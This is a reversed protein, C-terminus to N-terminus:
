VDSQMLRAFFNKRELKHCYRGPKGRDVTASLLGEQTYKRGPGPYWGRLNPHKTACERIWATLRENIKVARGVKLHVYGPDNPGEIKYCYIYGPKDSASIPEVM